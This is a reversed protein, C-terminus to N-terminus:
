VRNEGGILCSQTGFDWIKVMYRSHRYVSVLGTTVLSLAVPLTDLVSVIWLPFWLLNGFASRLPPWLLSARRGIWKLHHEPLGTSTGSAALVLQM